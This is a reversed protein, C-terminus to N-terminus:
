PFVRRTEDALRAAAMALGDHADILNRRAHDLDAATATPDAHTNRYHVQAFHAVIQAARHDDYALQLPHTTTHM